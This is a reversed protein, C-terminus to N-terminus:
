YLCDECGSICKGCWTPDSDDNADEAIVGKCAECLKTEDECVCDAPPYNSDFDLPYEKM